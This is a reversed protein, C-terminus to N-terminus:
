QPVQVQQEFSATLGTMSTEPRARTPATKGDAAAAKRASDLVDPAKRKKSGEVAAQLGQGRVGRAAAAGKAPM